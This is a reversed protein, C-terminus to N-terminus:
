RQCKPCFHASRGGVTIRKIKVRCRRCPEGERQYVLREETYGGKKGATDRYDSTSTGRLKVAKSLIERMAKWLGNLEKISLKNASKLPHVKAKWLIDDSYINGIGAIVEQDMLVQKIKRKEDKILKVFKIFEFSKDLPEPGLKQLEPLNEIQEKNGLIAKGFKRVDSYGLMKGSDLYFILHIYQNYSDEVAERPELPIVMEKGKKSEVKWRGVILHGTMKLHVLMMYGGSLYILINKARRKVELIKKDKIVKKFVEVHKHAVKNRQQDLPDKLMKPWDFWVGVIRRGRVKKNLDSVITQVEPLEPM